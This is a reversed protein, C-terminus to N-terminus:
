LLTQGSKLNRAKAAQVRVMIRHTIFYAAVSPGIALVLGGLNLAILVDIEDKIFQVLYGWRDLFDIDGDQLTRVLAMVDTFETSCKPLMVIGAKYSALYLFPMTVPNCFWIGIYAAPKSARLLFAIGLALVTHFPMTPTIAVFIGIAMGLSISHPDGRLQKFSKVLLYLQYKVNLCNALGSLNGSDNKKNGKDM